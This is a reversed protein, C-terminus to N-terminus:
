GWFTCIAGTTWATSWRRSPSHYHASGLVFDTRAITTAAARAIGFDAVKATGPETLLVNQPKINRHVIGHGHAAKLAKAIQIAIAAARRIALPGERRVLDKLTGSPVYEM